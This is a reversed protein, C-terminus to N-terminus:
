HSLKKCLRHLLDVRKTRIFVPSIDRFTRKGETPLRLSDLPFLCVGSGDHIKKTSQVRCFQDYVTSNSSLRCSFADIINPLVPTYRPTDSDRGSHRLRARLITTRGAAHFIKILFKRVSISFIGKTNKEVKRM